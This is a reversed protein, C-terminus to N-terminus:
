FVGRKKDRYIKDFTSSFSWDSRNTFVAKECIFLQIEGCMDEQGVYVEVSAWNRLISNFGKANCSSGRDPAM